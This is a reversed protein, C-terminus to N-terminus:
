FKQNHHIAAKRLELIKDILVEATEYENGPSIDYLRLLEVLERRFATGRKIIM